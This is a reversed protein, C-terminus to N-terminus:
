GEYSSAAFLPSSQFVHFEASMLHQTSGIQDSRVQIWVPDEADADSDPMAEAACAALLRITACGGFTIIRSLSLSPRELKRAIGRQSYTAGM